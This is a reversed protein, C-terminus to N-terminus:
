RFKVRTRNESQARRKKKSNVLQALIIYFVIILLLTIATAIFYKNSFFDTIYKTYQAVVDLEITTQAILNVEGVFQGDYMVTMKGIVDGKRIPATLESPIDVINQVDKMDASKPLSIAIEKDTTVVVYDRNKGLQVPIERVPANKQVITFYQYENIAFVLMEKMDAYTQSIGSSSIAVCVFRVGKDETMSVMSSGVNADGYLALGSARRYYYTSSSDILSNRTYVKKTKGNVRLDAYRLNAREIIYDLSLAHCAILAADHPTTYNLASGSYYGTVNAFNTSTAGLSQAKANMRQYFSYMDGGSLHLAIAVAAEQSNCVLVANMLDGLSIRDGGVIGASSMQPTLSKTKEHVTIVTDLPIGSEVLLICTMLRPLFGCFVIDNAGKDFLVTGTEMNVIIGKEAVIQLGEETQEASFPVLIVSLCIIFAAIAAFFRRTKNM